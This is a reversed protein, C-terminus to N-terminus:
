MIRASHDTYLLSPLVDPIFTLEEVKKIEQYIKEIKKETDIKLTEKENLLKVIQNIKYEELNKNFQEQAKNIM